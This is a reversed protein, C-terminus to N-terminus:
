AKFVEQPDIRSVHHVPLLAALVNAALIVTSVEIVLDPDLQCAIVPDWAYFAAALAAALGWGLIVGFLSLVLSQLLASGYVVAAGAGVAKLVAYDRSHEVTATYLVIGAILVGAVLGILALIQVPQAFSTSIMARDNTALQRRAVAHVGALRDIQATVSQESAGPDLRVLGYSVMGAGGISEAVQLPVFLFFDGAADTEASTGVVRLRRGFLTLSEGVRVGAARAFGRDLVVESGHPQLSGSDVRWPGGPQGPSFGVLYVPLHTGHVLAVGNIGVVPAVSAVGPLRGVRGMTAEPFASQAFLLDDIGSQAVILQSGTHDVYATSSSTIWRSTGELFVVLMAAVALAVTSVAWRRREGTLNRWAVHLAARARGSWAPSLPGPDHRVSNKVTFVEGSELTL